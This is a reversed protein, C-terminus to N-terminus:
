SKFNIALNSQYFIKQNSDTAYNEEEGVARELEDNMDDQLYSSKYGRQQSQAQRLHARQYAAGLKQTRPSIFKKASM